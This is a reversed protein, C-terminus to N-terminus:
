RLVNIPRLICLTNIFNGMLGQIAIMAIQTNTIAIDKIYAGSALKNQNMNQSNTAITQMHAM